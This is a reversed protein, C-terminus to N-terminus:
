AAKSAPFRLGTIIRKSGGRGNTVTLFDAEMQAPLKGKVMSYNDSTGFRYPVTASGSAQSPDLNEMVYLELYDYNTGEFSGKSPRAGMVQVKETVVSM